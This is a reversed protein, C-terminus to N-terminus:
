DNYSQDNNYPQDDNNNDYYSPYPYNNNNSDDDDNSNNDSPYEDNLNYDQVGTNELIEIQICVGAKHVGTNNCYEYQENNNNDDDDDINYTTDDDTTGDYPSAVKYSKSRPWYQNLMRKAEQTTRPYNNYNMICINALDVILNGYRRPNLNQILLSSFLIEEAGFKVSLIKSPDLNEFKKHPCVIEKAQVQLPQFALQVGMSALMTKLNNLEKYYDISTMDHQQCNLLSKFSLLIAKPRYIEQDHNYSIQKIIRLLKIADSEENAQNYNPYTRMQDILEKTCQWHIINYMEEMYKKNHQKDRVYDKVEQEFIIEEMWSLTASAQTPQVIYHYSMDEIGEISKQVCITYNKEDYNYIAETSEKYKLSQGVDFINGKLDICAGQFMEYEDNYDKNENKNYKKNEDNNYEKNKYAYDHDQEYEKNHEYYDNYEYDREEKIKNM